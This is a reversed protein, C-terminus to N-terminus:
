APWKEVMLTDQKDPTHLHRYVEETVFPCFPHMLKLCTALVTHLTWQASAKAKEDEGRLVPKAQEIIVDAFSHWFYHYLKEAALYLRYNEIDQTIEQGLAKLEDLSQQDEPTLEPQRSPDMDETNQMVFKSANWVKNAFHKYGRVRDESLKVDNGPAAGIILSLRTADAGYKEIMDLPDIINGLSKSMKRGQDDRVLGHLYVTRFPVDNLLYGTMLIMRAVWFFLIDYGTELVSTPHYVKLDETEEPWGLTSFTWLGSSFWTDLTDPDQQWEQGEPPEVGVYMKEGKYWVPVRHGYWIQRSICWDRLNDIWHYYIKEFREPLIKIKGSEVTDRMLEKLSVERGPIKKNVDIFWQEKIQPEIVGGGRSNTALRHTYNEDIKELLGKGKLKEVIAPRAKAIHMGAFDGAIPLLKGNADIIQEKDLNHREAIDFDTADHWPTITMVGTGFEMDVAGDKIVTATIPGNIWELEIKQGHTYDQYRADDPHMVVYKDGFKTEPRATGITFPGYKLYYFNGKEEKYEVEDDSVTTQMKPDWNVIRSGRYILGEEYMKKFATRVAVNRKEDLTYAERSWDLSSGMKRLQHIITDHSEKAFQEVRALFEERGLDHRTKKEKKYLEAEVKSQTALAAHDTGPLWLTRHGRMRHYRILIDQIALMAAHGMHLTGTVNPPPLVISFVEGDPKTVGAKVCNEPNFFGSKEWLEYTKDEVEKSNYAKPLDNM